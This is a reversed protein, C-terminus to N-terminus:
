DFMVKIKEESEVKKMDAEVMIRVLEEFSTKTPNWNLLTKAKTPDGLLQDVEAPRFFKPDIEVIVEGTAKNTGKEDLGEGSWEIEIGTHKFALQVFERVSHMEGTAIVFDEPKDHQLILWMCEVYDKAYGWDRLSDLNGLTLKEQKGQAIRSAALTIKRTVFTEGRRESEHNFLIGNVAFMNYSERYNKTIWFGYIKAVGYPSRPYFPTTEKQPVEQVKGYLESTSAQYVRTKDTLGLIRVAELINLTGKADVDLTYGPMDFSVRVHSQAALNYIEDPQIDGIIRTVNLADTVDGYHLHFNSNNLLASAAEETLLDELREQNYSSSRRILGHVEYGKELLLEALYSGDQGTVGTILATKM